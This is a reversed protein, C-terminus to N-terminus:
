GSKVQFSVPTANQTAPTDLKDIVQSSLSSANRFVVFAGAAVLVAAIVLTISWLRYYRKM